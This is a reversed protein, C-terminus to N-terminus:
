RRRLGRTELCLAEVADLMRDVSFETEARRRGAAGMAARTDPESLLRGIAEAMAEPDAPQVLLGTEGDAVAEPVGDVNTAVVPLAVSMAELATNPMGELLSPLVFVDAAQLLAPVDNRFGAFVVARSIGLSAARDELDGREVGDGAVILRVNPFRERVRALADLLHVHGKAPHLRSTTVLLPADGLQFEARIRERAGPDDPPASVGNPIAVIRDPGYYGYALLKTRCFEAPTVYRDVMTGYTLKSRFSRKMVADGMRCLIAPGRGRSLLRAAWAMRICKPMKLIVLDIAHERYLRRLALVDRPHFDGRMALDTTPLGAERCAEGWRSEPKACAAVRHEHAVLRGAVLLMWKEIGGWGGREIPNLLLVSLRDDV